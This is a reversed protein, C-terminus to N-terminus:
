DDVLSLTREASVHFAAGKDGEFEASIEMDTWRLTLTHTGEGVRMFMCCGAELVGQKEGDILIDAAGYVSNLAEDITVTVVGPAVQARAEPAALAFVLLGATAALIARRTPRAPSRNPTPTTMPPTTM